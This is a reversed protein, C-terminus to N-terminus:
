IKVLKPLRHEVFARSRLRTTNKCESNLMEFCINQFLFHSKEGVVVIKLGYSNTLLAAYFKYVYGPWSRWIPSNNAVATIM